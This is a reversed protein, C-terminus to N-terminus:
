QGPGADAVADFVSALSGSQAAILGVSLARTVRRAEDSLYEVPSKGDIRALMLCPLLRATRELLGARLPEPFHATWRPVFDKAMEILARADAPHHIAKLVLHNVLFAGDFAPDGYWACEADLIVPHGDDCAVLINKPSLDGHVLAMRTSRTAEVVRWIESAVEPHRQATTELYPDLRLADFLANTPFARAVADDLLTARHVRGIVDGLTPAVRRDLRGALLESKWLVYDAPPLFALLAAGAQADEAFVTPVAQPVVAGALRLWAVEFHNRGVPVRWDDAVRLQDLARKACFQRGDDLQVRVIDSSVGGSLPEVAVITRDQLGASRLLSALVAPWGGAETVAIRTSSDAM